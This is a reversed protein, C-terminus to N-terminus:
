PEGRSNQFKNWKGLIKKLFSTFVNKKSELESGLPFNNQKAWNTRWSGGRSKGTDFGVNRILLKRLKQNFEQFFFWRWFTQESRCKMSKVMQGSRLYKRDFTSTNFWKNLLFKIKGQVEDQSSSLKGIWDFRNTFILWSLLSSMSHFADM